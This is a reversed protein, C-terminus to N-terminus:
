ACLIAVRDKTALKILLDIGKEFEETQMYDAFGRFSENERATNTSDARGKRLGGLGAM